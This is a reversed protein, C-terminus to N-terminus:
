RGAYPDTMQVLTLDKEITKLKMYHTVRDGIQSFYIVDDTVYMFQPATINSGLNTQNLLHYDRDYVSFYWDDEFDESKNTKAFIFDDTYTVQAVYYDTKLKVTETKSKIDFECFGLGFHFYYITNEDINTIYCDNFDDILETAEGTALNGQVLHYINDKASKTCFYVYNDFSKLDSGFLISDKVETEFLREAKGSELAIKFYATPLHNDADSCLEYLLFGNHFAFSGGGTTMGNPAHQEPLICIKKHESGDMNMQVLTFKNSNDNLYVSYLHNNYYGLALGAYANCNEDNHSCDPKNCLIYFEHKGHESFYIMGREDNPNMYYEGMPTDIFYQSNDQLRYVAYNKNDKDTNAFCGAFLILCLFLSILVKIRTM